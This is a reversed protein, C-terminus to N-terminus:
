DWDKAVRFYERFAVLDEMNIERTVVCEGETAQAVVRGKMNLIMTEGKYKINSDDIGVRNVGVIYAQNEIARARLLTNWVESKKEPWEATFVALDYEYKGDKFSNRNWVPFRMDYCVFPRIRWGKYEITIREEGRNLGIEGGMTFLHRKNYLHYRGDPEMWIFSNYFGNNKLIITGCVACNNEAAKERMWQMTPGGVEEAFENPDAPFGTTFTEPFVIIDTNEVSKLMEDLHRRNAEPNRTIVDNQICSIKLNM